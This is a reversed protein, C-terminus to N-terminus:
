VMMIIFFEFSNENGICVTLVTLGMSNAYHMHKWCEKKKKERHTDKMSNKDM